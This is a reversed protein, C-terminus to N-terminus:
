FTNSIMSKRCNKFSVYRTSAGVSYCEFIFSWISCLKTSWSERWKDAMFEEYRFHLQQLMEKTKYLAELRESEWQNHDWVQRASKPLNSTPMRSIDYFSRFYANSVIRAEAKKYWLHRQKEDFFTKSADSVDSNTLLCVVNISIPFPWIRGRKKWVTKKEM